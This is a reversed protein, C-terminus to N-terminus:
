LHQLNHQDDLNSTSDQNNPRGNAPADIDAAVLNLVEDISSIIDETTMMRRQQQQQQQQQRTQGRNEFPQRPFQLMLSPLLEILPLSPPGQLERTDFVNSRSIDEDDDDDELSWQAAAREHSSFVNSTSARRGSTSAQSRRHTRQAARRVSVAQVLSNQATNAGTPLYCPDM